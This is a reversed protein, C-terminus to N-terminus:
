LGNGNPIWAANERGGGGGGQWTEGGRQEQHLDMKGIREVLALNERQEMGMQIWEM